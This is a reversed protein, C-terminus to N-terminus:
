RPVEVDVGVIGLVTEGDEDFIPAYVCILEGWREYEEREVRVPKRSTFCLEEWHGIPEGSGPPSHGESGIADGDLIFEINEADIRRMTYIYKANSHEKITAFYSQMKKYYPSNQYAEIPMEKGEHAKYSAVEAVFSKYAELDEMIYGAIAVAIGQAGQAILEDTKAQDAATNTSQEVCGSLLFLAFFLCFSLRFTTQM